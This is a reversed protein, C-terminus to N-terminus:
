VEDKQALIYPMPTKKKEQPVGTFEIFYSDHVPKLGILKLQLGSATNLKPHPWEGSRASKDPVSSESQLL